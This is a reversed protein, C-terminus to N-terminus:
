ASFNESIKNLFQHLKEENELDKIFQKRSQPALLENEM